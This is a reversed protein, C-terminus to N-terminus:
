PYQGIFTYCSVSYPYSVGPPAKGDKTVWIWKANSSIDKRFGWPGVGNSGIEKAQEWSAGSGELRCKWTSDTVTGDAFSMILGGVVGTDKVTVMIYGPISISLKKTQWWPGLGSNNGDILVQQNTGPEGKYIIFSDDATMSFDMACGIHTHCSVSYPYSVGPPARGDETVWIWKARSSIGSRTRWPGVGNSGIEKAQPWNFYHSYSSGDGEVRCKWHTKETVRGTSVSMLLGGVVGSDKVTVMLYGPNSVSFNKTQWWKNGSGLEVQSTGPEGGYLTFENDGTMSIDIKCGRFQSSSTQLLFLLVLPLLRIFWSMRSM